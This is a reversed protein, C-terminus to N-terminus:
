RMPSGDIDLLLRKLDFATNLCFRFFTDNNFLDSKAGAHFKTSM